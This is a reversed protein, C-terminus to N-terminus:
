NNDIMVTIEIAQIGTTTRHGVRPAGAQDHDLMFTRVFPLLLISGTPNFEGLWCPSARVLGSRAHVLRNAPLSRAWWRFHQTTTSRVRLSFIKHDVRSWTGCLSQANAAASEHPLFLLAICVWRVVASLSRELRPPMTCRM